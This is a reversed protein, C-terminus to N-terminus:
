GQQERLIQLARTVRDGLGAVPKKSIKEAESLLHVVESRYDVQTALVAAILTLSARAGTVALVSSLVLAALIAAVSWGPAATAVAAVLTVVAIATPIARQPRKLVWGIATRRSTAAPPTARRDDDISALRARLADLREQQLRSGAVDALEDRIARYSDDAPRTAAVTIVLWGCVLLVLLAASLLVADVVRAQDFLLRAAFDLGVWLAIIIVAALPVVWAVAHLRVITRSGRALLRADFRATGIDALQGSLSAFWAVLLWAVVPPLLSDDVIGSV